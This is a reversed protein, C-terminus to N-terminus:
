LNISTDNLQQKNSGGFPATTAKGCQSIGTRKFVTCIALFFIKCDLIFSLNNVYELDHKFKDDWSQANRGRVGALGVLGPRVEHRKRQEENYLPLYSVLLPRPGIISIDGKIINILQPLEDLSTSRLFEGFKTLRMEDELLKGFEDKTDTMTRFKYLTFIRERLGPREQKFIVSNGIKKRVLIAVILFVPSLVVIGIFSLIIDILRKIYRRYFGTKMEFDGCEM